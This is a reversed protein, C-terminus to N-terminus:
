KCLNIEPEEDIHSEDDMAQILKEEWAERDLNKKIKDVIKFFCEVKGQNELIDNLTDEMINLKYKLLVEKNTRPIIRTNIERLEKVLCFLKDTDITINDMFIVEYLYIQNNTEKDPRNPESLM